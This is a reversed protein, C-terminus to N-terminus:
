KNGFVAIHEDNYYRGVKSAAHQNFDPEVAHRSEHVAFKTNYEFEGNEQTNYTEM